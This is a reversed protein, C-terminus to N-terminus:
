HCQAMSVAFVPTNKGLMIISPALKRGLGGIQLMIKAGDALSGSELLLYFAKVKRKLMWDYQSNIVKERIEQSIEHNIIHGIM